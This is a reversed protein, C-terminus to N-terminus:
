CYGQRLDEWSSFYMFESSLVLPSLGEWNKSWSRWFKQRAIYKLSIHLNCEVSTM